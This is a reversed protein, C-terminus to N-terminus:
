AKHQLIKDNLKACDECNGEEVFTEIASLIAHEVPHKFPDKSPNGEKLYKQLVQKTKSDIERSYEELIGEVIDKFNPNKEKNYKVLHADDYDIVGENYMYDIWGDAFKVIENFVSKQEENLIFENLHRMELYKKNKKKKLKKINGIPIDGSGVEPGEPASPNGMGPTNMPTAFNCELFAKFSKM